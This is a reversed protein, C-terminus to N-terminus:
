ILNPLLRTAQDICLVLNLALVPAFVLWAKTRGFKNAFWMLFLRTALLLALNLVLLWVFRTDISLERSETPISGWETVRQGTEFAAGQLEADVRLVSTPSFLNGQATTLVLQNTGAKVPALGEDGAQRLGSVLYESKGQGTYVTFRDGVKLEAIKGFPAGYSWARGFLVTMGEQGPLVTDRRHGVGSRMSNSDTGEVVIADLGIKDIVLRAVPTGDRLLANEFDKEGTPATASSTKVLFENQLRVQDAAFTLSSIAFFNVLFALSLALSGASLSAWFSYNMKTLLSFNMKKM